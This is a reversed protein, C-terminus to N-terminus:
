HSSRFHARCSDKGLALENLDVGVSRKSFSPKHKSFFENKLDETIILTESADKDATIGM